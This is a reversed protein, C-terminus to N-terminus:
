LKKSKTIKLIEVCIEKLLLFYKKSQNALEPLIKDIDDLCTIIIKMRNNDLEGNSVFGSICGALDEYISTACIGKYDRGEHGVPYSFNGLENWM